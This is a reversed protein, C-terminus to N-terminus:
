NADGEWPWPDDTWQWATGAPVNRNTLQGYRAEFEATAAQLQQKTKEYFALASANHPHGDLYLVADTLAFDFRRVRLLLQERETM